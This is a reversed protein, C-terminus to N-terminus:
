RRRRRSGRRTTRPVQSRDAARVDVSHGVCAHEHLVAAARLAPLPAGLWTGHLNCHEYPTLATSSAPVTFTVVPTESGDTAFTKYFIVMGTKDRVWAATIHHADSMGHVTAGVSLTAVGGSVSVVPVHSPPKTSFAAPFYFRTYAINLAEKAAAMPQWAISISNGAWVQHLNCYEYPTVHTVGAPVTFTVTAASDTTYNFDHYFIPRGLQDLVWVSAIHHAETMVHPSSGVSVTAVLGSLTLVPVHSPPKTSYSAPYYSGNYVGTAELAAITTARMDLLSVSLGEWVGHLNCHEYPTLQGTGVPIEFSVVPTEDTTFSKFFIINGSEDAVWASTIHHSDSQGHVTAGVSLTAMMGSVSLVPVHSPPKTEFGSAFYRRDAARHCM